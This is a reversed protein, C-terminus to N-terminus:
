PTSIQAPSTPLMFEFRAGGMKGVSAVLRGGHHDIILRCLALGLGTGKPKTTVFPDFIKDLRSPDIGLGSDEVTVAVTRPFRAETSICLVRRREKVTAMAEIANGVLNSVVEKLQGGHGVAQPLASELEVQTIIGHEELERRRAKLVDLIIENLDIAQRKEESRGFLARVSELMERARQSEDIIDNLAARALAHDAPEKKLSILAVEGNTMIATLPQKVEHSISAAMAGLNMLTNDRERRLMRNSRALRAYLRTVEALLMALVITATILSYIRGAYWGLDFRASTLLASMVYEAIWALMVVTLWLDLISRRHVWLVVLVFLGFLVNIAAVYYSLPAYRTQDQFLRPLFDHGATAVFTFGCVLTIVIAVSLGMILWAPLETVPTTHRARDLWVYACIASPLGLHWFLYLWVTTQLGSGFLGTPTLVGPFTVLFSIIMLATFLYGNVLALLGRSRSVSFQAFLLISTTLDTVFMTAQLAPIFADVRPLKLDAFPATVAFAVLLTTVTALAVRFQAPTPPLDALTVGREDTQNRRELKAEVLINDAPLQGFPVAHAVPPARQEVV